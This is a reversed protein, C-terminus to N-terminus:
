ISTPLNLQSSLCFFRTHATAFHTNLMLSLHAPFSDTECFDSLVLYRSLHMAEFEPISTYNFTLPPKFVVSLIFLVCCCYCVFFM